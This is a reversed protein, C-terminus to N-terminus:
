DPVHMATLEILHREVHDMPDTSGKALSLLVAGEVTAVITTALSAAVSPETGNAVLRDRIVDVWSEIEAGAAAAADPANARGLLTAVLPCGLRLDGAALSQKWWSVFGRVADAPRGNQTVFSIAEGIASGAAHAAATMLETKGGPFNLYLTRRSVGSHELLQAVGTGDVGRERTLEIASTILSERAAM